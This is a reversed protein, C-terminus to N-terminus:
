HQIKGTEPYESPNSVELVQGNTLTVRYKVSPATAILDLGFERELREQIIEMHLLGLFGCRFGFGLAQSTEPEFHMAADNLVLKELAERLDEYDASDVPYLGCFVMPNVRRYGPLPEPTPRRADTITDGVRTDRVNKISACVYGVDGPGLEGVPTMGPRFTGVETVDFEAGTAMFRIRMGPRITGDKVRIYCVVGKYADY